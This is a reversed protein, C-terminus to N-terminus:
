FRTTDEDSCTKSRKPRSSSATVDNQAASRKKSRKSSLTIYVAEFPKQLFWGDSDKTFDLPIEM